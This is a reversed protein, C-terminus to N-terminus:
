NVGVRCLVCICFDRELNFHRTEVAPVDENCSLCLISPFVDSIVAAAVSSLRPKVSWADDSM